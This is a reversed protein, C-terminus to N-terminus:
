ANTERSITSKQLKTKHNSLIGKDAAKSDHENVVGQELHQNYATSGNETWAMKNTRGANCRKKKKIQKSRMQRKDKGYVICIYQTLFMM